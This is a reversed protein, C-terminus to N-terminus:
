KISYIFSVKEYYCDLKKFLISNKSFEINLIRCSKNQIILEIIENNIYNVSNRIQSEKLDM